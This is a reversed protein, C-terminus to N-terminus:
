RFRPTQRTPCSNESRPASGSRRGDPSTARARGGVPFWTAAEPRGRRAAGPIVPRRDLGAEIPACSRRRRHLGGAMNRNKEISDEGRQRRAVIGDIDVSSKAAAAVALRQERRRMAPDEADVAIGLGHPAPAAQGLTVAPAELDEFSAEAVHRMQEGRHVGVRDGANREIEADGRRLEVRRLAPKENRKSPGSSMRILPAPGSRQLDRRLRQGFGFQGLQDLSKPSSRKARRIARAIMAARCRRGIRRVVSSASITRAATGGIRARAPDPWESM